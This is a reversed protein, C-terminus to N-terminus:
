SVDAQLQYSMGMKKSRLIFTFILIFLMYLLYRTARNLPALDTGKSDSIYEDIAKWILNLRRQFHNKKKNLMSVFM